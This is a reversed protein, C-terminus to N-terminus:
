WFRWAGAALVWVGLAANTVAHALVCQALSKTRYLTLNYLVGAMFGAALQHHELAFLVATIAFSPWHIRGLSVSLFDRKELVRILFSRWFLEEALPVLLAAGSFRVALLATRWVGEPAAEPMFPTPSGMRAWPVDMHIWLFFVLLGILLSFLSDKWRLLERLSFEPCLPLCFWLALAALAARFPYALTGANPSVDILGSLGALELAAIGAVLAAFPLVRPMAAVWEGSGAVVAGGNKGSM